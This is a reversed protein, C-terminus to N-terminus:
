NADGYCVGVVRDGSALVEGGGVNLSLCPECSSSATADVDCFHVCVYRDVIPACTLDQICLDVRDTSFPECEQGATLDGFLPLVSPHLCATVTGGGTRPPAEEFTVPRCIYGEACRTHPAWPLCATTCIGYDLETVSFGCIANEGCDSDAACLEQCIADVGAGGPLVCAAGPLCLQDPNGDRECVEGVHQQGIHRCVTEIRGASDRTLSCSLGAPCGEATFPDCEAPYQDCARAVQCDNDECDEAGDGDNDVGDRCTTITDETDGTFRCSGDECAYGDPCPCGLEDSDFPAVLQCGPATTLLLWVLLARACAGPRV